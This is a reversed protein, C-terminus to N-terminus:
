NVVALMCNHAHMPLVHIAWRPNDAAIDEPFARFNEKLEEKEKKLEDEAKKLNRREEELSEEKKLLLRLQLTFYGAGHDSSDLRLKEEMSM